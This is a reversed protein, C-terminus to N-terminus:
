DIPPHIVFEALSQPRTVERIGVRCTRAQPSKLFLMISFATMKTCTGFIQRKKKKLSLRFLLVSAPDCLEPHLVRSCSQRAM